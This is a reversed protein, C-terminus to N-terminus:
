NVQQRKLLEDTTKNNLCSMDEQQTSLLLLYQMSDASFPIGMINILLPLSIM